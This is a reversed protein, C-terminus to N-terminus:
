PPPSGAFQPLGDVFSYWPARSAVHIHAQPRAGPDADLLVAPVLVFPVGEREVPAAGGCGTCFAVTFREADPVKYKQVQARGSRWSFQSPAYFANSAHAASRGRRCRSCHCQLWRLPAGVVTFSVAGCSCSGPVSGEVRSAEPNVVGAPPLAPWGPPAGQHQPLTDAIAHWPARSGVFAHQGGVPGFDDLLNGAPVLVRGEVPAPAVAGCAGCFRRTRRASSAYGLASAEGELWRLTHAPVEVLTAFPAGHHKRCMSCHCHILRQVPGEVEYRLAGCLCAGTIM